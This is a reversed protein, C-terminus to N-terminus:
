ASPLFHESHRPDPSAYRRSGYPSVNGEDCMDWAPHCSFLLFVRNDVISSVLVLVLALYIYRLQLTPLQLM